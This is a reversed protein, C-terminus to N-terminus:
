ARARDHGAPYLLFSSQATLVSGYRHLRPLHWPVASVRHVCLFSCPFAHEFRDGNLSKDELPRCPDTEAAIAHRRNMPGENLQIFVAPLRLMRALM